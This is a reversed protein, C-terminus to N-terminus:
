IGLARFETCPRSRQWVRDFGEVLQRNRAPLAPSWEGEFRSGLVRFLYGDGDNVLFASPYQMDVPDDPTRFEFASSLRQALELLPHPQNQVAAVDQVLIQVVGARGSIAFQKLIEVIAPQAYLGRELDRTYICIQRRARAILQKTADRLGDADDFEVPKVSPGRPTAAPRGNSDIASLTARMPVHQIGAEEYQDGSVAFGFKEYFGTASVQANLTVESWGLERAKEILARLLADGVGRGRWSKLVAMRGIKHEPTLRGTGIPRREADRAIVHHSLPDLEDWELELPVNQEVVFVPERVARLDKLDATYDAPEVRFDASDM